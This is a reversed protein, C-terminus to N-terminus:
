PIIPPHCGRGNLVAFQDGVLFTSRIDRTVVISTVGLKGRLDNILLNIEDATEV